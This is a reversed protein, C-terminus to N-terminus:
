PESRDEVTRICNPVILLRVKVPFESCNLPKYIDRM